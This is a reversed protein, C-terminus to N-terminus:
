FRSRCYAGAASDSDAQDVLKDDIYVSCAVPQGAYAGTATVSFFESSEFEYSYPYEVEVSSEVGPISESVMTGTSETSTLEVRVSHLEPADSQGPSTCGASLLSAALTATVMLSKAVRM